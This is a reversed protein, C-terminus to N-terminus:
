HLDDQPNDELRNKKADNKIAYNLALFLLAVVSLILVMKVVFNDLLDFMGCIFFGFAVLGIITLPITDKNLEYLKM